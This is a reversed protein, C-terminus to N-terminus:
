CLRERLADLLSESSAFQRPCLLQGTSNLIRAVSRRYASNDEVLWVIAPSLPSTM